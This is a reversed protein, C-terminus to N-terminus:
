QQGAAKRIALIHEIINHRLKDMDLKCRNVDQKKIKSLYQKAKSISRKVKVDTSAKYKDLTDLLTSIYRLDDAAERYGAWQVTEIVGDATPYVMNHQKYKNDKREDHWVNPLYRTKGDIKGWNQAKGWHYIYTMMGDFDNQWVLFGYNRRYTDPAEVGSQPNAYSVIKYGNQHWRQAEKKNPYGACVFLDLLDGMLAFNGKEGTYGAVYIKGGAEHVAKWAERQSTLRDGRAEDIGYFYINKFGLKRLASVHKRANNKVAEISKEKEPKWGRYFITERNMGLEQLIDFAERSKLINFQFMVDKVSHAKLDEMEKGFQRMRDKGYYVKCPAYYYISVYYRSEALKFPLVRINLTMVGCKEGQISFDLNGKYLGPKTNKPVNITVWFQKNIGQPINLPQLVKADLVPFENKTKEPRAVNGNISVYRSSMPGGLKLYNAKKGMDVRILSDDYLLLEPVLVMEGSARVPNYGHAPPPTQFGKGRDQYWAKVVKVDISDTSIENGDKSILPSGTVNFENINEEATVVFSGSQYEGPTLTINLASGFVGRRFSSNPLIPDDSIAKVTRLLFRKNNLKGNKLATILSKIEAIEAILKKQERTTQNIVLKGIFHALKITIRKKWLETIKNKAKISSLKQSLKTIAPNLKNWLNNDPFEINEISASIASILWLNGEKVSFTIRKIPKSDIKFKSLYLGTYASTTNNTWIVAGNPLSHCNNMQSVDCMSNVKVNKKSGDKYTVTIGGITKSKSAEKIGHLVYLYKFGGNDPLNVSCFSNKPKQSSLFVASKGNSVNFLIGAFRHKGVPFNHPQNANAIETINVPTSNVYDKKFQLNLESYKINGSSKSFNIRITFTNKDFKRNDQITIVLNGSITFVGDRVKLVIKKAKKDHTINMKKFVVPFLLSKDDILLKQGKYKDTPIRIGMCLQKTPVGNKSTFKVSYDITNDSIKVAKLKFHFNKRNKCTFVGEFTDDESTRNNIRTSSSSQVQVKWKSDYHNIACKIDNDITFSGNQQFKIWDNEPFTAIDQANITLVCLATLLLITIKLFKQSM